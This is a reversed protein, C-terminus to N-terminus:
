ECEKTNMKIRRTILHLSFYVKKNEGSLYDPDPLVLCFHNDSPDASYRQPIRVSRGSLGSLGLCILFIIPHTCPALALDM